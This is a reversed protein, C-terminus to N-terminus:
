KAKDKAMGAEAYIGLLMTAVKARKIAPAKLEAANLTDAVVKTDDKVLDNVGAPPLDWTTNFNDARGDLGALALLGATLAVAGLGMRTRNMMRDRRPIPFRHGVADP